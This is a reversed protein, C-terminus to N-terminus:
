KMCIEILLKEFPGSLVKRTTAMKPAAKGTGVYLRPAAAEGHEGDDKQSASQVSDTTGYRVPGNAEAPTVGTSAIMDEWMALYIGPAVKPGPGSPTLLQDTREDSKSSLDGLWAMYEEAEAIVTARDQDSLSEVLKALEPTLAGASKAEGSGSESAPPVYAGERRAYVKMCEKYWTLYAEKLEPANKALAHLFKHINKQHQKCLEFYATPGSTNDQALVLLEDLFAQIDSIAGAFDTARHVGRLIPEFANGVARILAALHDDTSASNECLVSILRQRDRAALSLSLRNLLNTHIAESTPIPVKAESLIIAVISQSQATSKGRIDLKGERTGNQVYNEIAAIQEKTGADPSSDLEKIRQIIRTEDGGLISSMITQLLNQGRKGSFWGRVSPAHQLFIRLVASLLTAANSVRLTQRILGYPLLGHVRKILTVLTPGAPNVVLLYHLFSACTMTAFQHATQLMPPLQTLDDTKTVWEVLEDMQTGYAFGHIMEDWARLVHAPNNLDWKEPLKGRPSDRGPVGGLAGRIAYEAVIVVAFGLIKRKSISGKDFSDSLDQAALAELIQQAHESWVAKPVDKFGPLTLALRRLLFNLVPLPLPLTEGVNPGLEPNFPPGSNSVRGPVKLSQMEALTQTHTLFSFLAHAQAPTLTPPPPYTMSPSQVPRMFSIVQNATTPPKRACGWWGSTLLKNGHATQIFTPNEVTGYPLQPFTWRPTYTGQMQMKFRSKQSMATDFIYYFTLLTTFLLIYVVTPFRYTEPEQSALYLVPYCYTFPVGAFNWFIIMFGWKEHFMDWTHPICEEGKACANIYLGTALVMFAMNPTVYGYTDYQKCAGSVAILFLLVWPIRVEAWMKLDVIGLRPNLCPGMWFDYIFNGSMRIQKGLAITVGYVVFSILFGYIIAVTMFEGFHDIIETLRFLGTTHLIAGAILTAYFSGLANCHYTLTKYGLSPVPLGEQKYGPMTFALVLEFVMLSTYIAWARPTPTADQCIHMWMRGLFPGIDQFSEPHVLSGNYFRLCIWFYYMMTPFFPIMATVGVPGGFEYGEHTDLRADSARGEATPEHSANQKLLTRENSSSSHTM